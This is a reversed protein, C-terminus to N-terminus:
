FNLIKRVFKQLSLNESGVLLLDGFFLSWFLIGSYPEESAVPAQTTDGFAEEELSESSTNNVSPGEALYAGEDLDQERKRENLYDHVNHVDISQQLAIDMNIQLVVDPSPFKLVGVVTDHKSQLTIEDAVAKNSTLKNPAIKNKWLRRGTSGFISPILNDNANLVLGKINM